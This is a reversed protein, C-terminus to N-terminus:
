LSLQQGLEPTQGAEEKQKALSDARTRILCAHIRALRELVDFIMRLMIFGVFVGLGALTGCNVGVWLSVLSGGVLMVWGVCYLTRAQGELKAAEGNLRACIPNVREPEGREDPEVVEIKGEAPTFSFDCKQCRFSSGLDGESEYSQGCNACRFHFATKM